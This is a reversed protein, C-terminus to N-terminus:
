QISSDDVFFNRESGIMGSERSVTRENERFEGVKGEGGSIKGWKRESGRSGRGKNERM